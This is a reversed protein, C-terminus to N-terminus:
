SQEKHAPTIHSLKAALTYSLGSLTPETGTQVATDKRPSAQLGPPSQEGGPCDAGQASLGSDCNALVADGSFHYLQEM